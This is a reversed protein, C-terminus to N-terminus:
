LQRFLPSGTRKERSRLDRGGPPWRTVGKVKLRTTETKPHRQSLVGEQRVALLDQRHSLVRCRCCRTSTATPMAQQRRERSSASRATNRSTAYPAVPPVPATGDDGALDSGLRERGGRRFPLSRGRPLVRAAPATAPRTALMDGLDHKDRALEAAGTGPALPAAPPAAAALDHPAAPM